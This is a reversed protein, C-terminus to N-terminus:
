RRRDDLNKGGAVEGGRAIWERLAAENFRIQRGGIKVVPLVGERALEYIRAVPMQWATALQRATILKM